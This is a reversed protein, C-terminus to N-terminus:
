LAGYVAHRLLGHFAPRAETQMMLVVALGQAPDVWFYTGARGSWSFDGVSGPWPHLGPLTRVLGGLGFGQGLAPDPAMLGLRSVSLALAVNAPLANSMMRGTATPSLLPEGGVSGGNLLLRCFRLYDPATSLLGGGGRFWRPPRGKQYGLDPRRGTEPAAQPEALLGEDAVLFGSRSMGLPGAIREGVVRDLDAGCVVEIVRGLVDMSMGYEFTTGPRYLLPLRALKAVMEANSQQHDRLDPIAAYAAHVMSTGAGVNTFGSTQRLLDLVTPQITPVLALRRGASGDEEVGLQLGGLEPLYHGVPSDLRLLGAEALSMATAAVVPKTMSAIRFISDDTMAVGAERDRCGFSKLHITEVASTVGVVAGPITGAAVAREFIADLRAADIPM